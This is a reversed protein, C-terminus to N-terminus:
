IDILSGRLDDIIRSQEESAPEPMVITERDKIYLLHDFRNLKALDNMVVVITTKETNVGDMVKQLATQVLRRDTPDLGEM